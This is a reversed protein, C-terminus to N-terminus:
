PDDSEPEDQGGDYNWRYGPEWDIKRRDEDILIAAQVPDDACGVVTEAGNKEIRYVTYPM